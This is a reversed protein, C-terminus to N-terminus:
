SVHDPETLARRRKVYEHAGTANHSAEGPYYFERMLERTVTSRYHLGSYTGWYQMLRFVVIGPLEHVLRRARRAAAVDLAIARVLLALFETFAMHSDPLIRRLAIAERKYRNRIKGASEEHVHVIAAEASYVIRLGQAKMWVAWAVDELGTLSEDYPHREWHSRRIAANANNCFPVLQDLDSVPPFHKGFVQHESFRTAECGVQRGYVLGVESDSLPGTLRELWDSGVPYVHASAFVLTDGTAAACGRNLSRGFTFEAPPIRIVRARFRGAIELTRDTSGSDVIVIEAPQVTQGCLSELLRGLHREENFCRIVVSILGASPRAEAM